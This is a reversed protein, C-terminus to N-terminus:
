PKTTNSQRAFLTSKVLVVSLRASKAAVEPPSTRIERRLDKLFDRRSDKRRRRLPRERRPLGFFDGEDGVDVSAVEDADDEM